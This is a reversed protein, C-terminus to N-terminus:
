PLAFLTKQVNADDLLADHEGDTAMVRVEGLNAPPLADQSLVRGDGDEKPEASFDWKPKRGGDRRMAALTRHRESRVVLVPVTAASGQLMSKRFTQASALAKEIFDDWAQPRERGEAYMALGMGRWTDLRYFNTRMPRGREDRVIRESDLPFFTYVSPFTALVEPSLIGANLGTRVGEHLDPLFGIGGRLPSGVLAVSSFLEPRRRLVALTLMGGMSHGVVTPAVGGSEAKVTELFKELLASTENLDRRWDYAFYRYPRGSKELADCFVSYIKKELFNEVVPLSKLIGVPKWGDRQQGEPGWLVPLALNPTRLAAVQAVTLWGREGKDDDLLSGKIGHLFVLTAPAAQIAPGM